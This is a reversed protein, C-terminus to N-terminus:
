LPNFTDANLDELIFENATFLLNNEFVWVHGVGKKQRRIQHAFERDKDIFIIHDKQRLSIVFKQGYNPLASDHVLRINAPISIYSYSIMLHNDTNMQRIKM